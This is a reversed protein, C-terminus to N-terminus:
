STAGSAAPKAYGAFSGTEELLLQLEEVEFAERIRRERPSWGLERVRNARSRSNSGIVVASYPGFVDVYEQGPIEKASAADVKGASHLGKGIMGAVDGWSIEEGNECFFYPSGSTASDPASEAWHLIMLYARALDAVHVTSWVAKGQGIHGAYKHKLAFRTLTPVQISLKSHKNVVGYILPPLVICLQAKTGFEARAKLIELDILRHSASDPLADLQEPKDDHYVTDSKFASKSDDSLFSTGSTHIYITKQDRSSRQRIGEIVAKVSRLDDATATHIVIDSSATKESIIASDELTGLVTKVGSKSLDDAAERRRVLVTVEYGDNLLNDLVTLGIYGPGVLFVKKSM